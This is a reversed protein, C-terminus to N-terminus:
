VAGFICNGNLRVSTLLECPKCAPSFALRDAPSPHALCGVHWLWLYTRAQLFIFEWVGELAVWLENNDDDGDGGRGSPDSLRSIPPLLVASALVGVAQFLPGWSKLSLHPGAAAMAGLAQYSKPDTQPARSDYPAPLPPHSPISLCPPFLIGLVFCPPMHGM